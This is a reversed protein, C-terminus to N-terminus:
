IRGHRVFYKELEVAFLVLSSLVLCIALDLLPLPQTHFIGDLAPTYIVAFQLLVTFTVAVLMPLNTFLGFTDVLTPSTWLTGKITGKNNKNNERM